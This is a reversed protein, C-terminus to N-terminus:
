HEKNEGEEDKPKLYKKGAMSMFALAIMALGFGYFLKEAVRLPAKTFVESKHIPGLNIAGKGPEHCKACVPQPREKPGHNAVEFHCDLCRDIRFDEGLNVKGHGKLKAVLVSGIIGPGDVVVEHCTSCTAPVNKTYISSRPDNSYLSYHMTHCDYCRPAKTNGEKALKAHRSMEYKKLAEEHCEECKVDPLGDAPHEVTAGKHCELCTYDLKGHISESFLKKDVYLNHVAGTSDTKTLTRDQHCEICDDISQSLAEGSGAAMILLLLLWPFFCAGSKKKM